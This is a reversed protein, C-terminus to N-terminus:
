RPKNTSDSALWGRVADIARAPTAGRDSSFWHIRPDGLRFWNYQHRVLRRTDHKARKVAEELLMQGAAVMGMDSYGISRMCPAELPVGADFLGRVEDLWGSDIMRDIREDVRRYLDPRPMTLGIVYSDYPPEESKGPGAPRGGRGRAVELARIVRRINRPDIRAAAEPDVDRLRSAVAEFGREAAERELGARFDPDPPVRAVRWGELLGWVYQGAGGVVLPVRDRGAIAEIAENARDLYGRLGLSEGPALIDILHHPVGKREAPTPKATGIDFGRCFLRSDANVVEGGFALAIEVAVASKGAATPGVVAVVRTV